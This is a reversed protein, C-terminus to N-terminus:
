PAPGLMQALTTAKNRALSCAAEVDTLSLEPRHPRSYDFWDTPAPLNLTIIPSAVMEWVSGTREPVRQGAIVVRLWKRRAVTRLLDQKVWDEAEGAFEYADFVLLAPLARDILAKLIHDLRGSLRLSAPPLPVGLDLVFSRLEDDLKTTGKFDFRGCALDPLKFVANNFMQLTIYTKGTESPGRLPLFRWPANRTLLRAFADRAGSHDAVPWNLLIPTEPWEPSTGSQPSSGTLQSVWRVLDEMDQSNSQPAFHRWGSIEVPLGDADAADLLVVRHRRSVWRAQYLQEQIVNAEAAAGWGGPEADPTISKPDFAAYWGRSGVMLVCASEKAQEICWRSWKEDPGGPNAELYFEDFAVPLGAERLRSALRRVREVHADNERRYSIFVQNPM